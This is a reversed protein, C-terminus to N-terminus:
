SPQMCAMVLMVRAINDVPRGANAAYVCVSWGNIFHFSFVVSDPATQLNAEIKDDCRYPEQVPQQVAVTGKGPMCQLLCDEINHRVHVRIAAPSPVQAGIGCSGVEVPLPGLWAQFCAWLHTAGICRNSRPSSTGRPSPPHNSVECLSLIVHRSQYKTTLM